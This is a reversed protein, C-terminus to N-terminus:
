EQVTNSKLMTFLKDMIIENNIYEIQRENVDKLYDEASKNAKEAQEKLKADTEEPLVTINESKLIQDIVLRSKVTKKAQEKYSEKLKEMTTNTYKFYDEIKMGQYMLRYNLDQVMSEVQSNVMVEPIEVESSETLTEIIANEVESEAKKINSENLKKASDAKYAELTDFESVDKAFEDNLEPLEKIKIEHLKVAFVAEKGALNAHYDDPFKVNINKEEGINVGELQQEFGPIFSGSGLELNQKEATGGEFKVGDVSGSYDIIVTDGKQAARGEVTILRSAREQAKKIEANIDEETVNYEIKKIKISKYDGLKVEPKVTVLATFTLSQDDGFEKIDVEPSEVPYVETEKDLVQAYYKPLALNFAEEYLVGKGYVNELVKKPVHGKRFGQMSYKGKNKQYAQQNAEEWEQPSLTITFKVQNKLKELNYNM